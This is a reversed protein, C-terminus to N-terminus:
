QPASTYVKFDGQAPKFKIPRATPSVHAEGGIKGTKTYIAQIAGSYNPNGLGDYGAVFIGAVGGQGEIM